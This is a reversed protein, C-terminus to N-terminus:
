KSVTFPLNASSTTGVISRHIRSSNDFHAFKLNSISLRADGGPQVPAVGTGGGYSDDRHPM